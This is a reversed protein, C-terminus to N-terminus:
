RRVGAELVARALSAAVGPVSMVTPTVVCTLGEAEVAPALDADV